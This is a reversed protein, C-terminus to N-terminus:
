ESGREEKRWTISLRQWMEAPLVQQMTKLLRRIRVQNGANRDDIVVNQDPYQQKMWDGVAFTFPACREVETVWEGKKNRLKVPESDLLLSFRNMGECSVLEKAYARGQKLASVAHGATKDKKVATQAIAATTKAAAKPAPPIKGDLPLPILEGKMPISCLYAATVKGKGMSELIKVYSLIQPTYEEMLRHKLEDVTENKKFKDTKYDVVIWNGEKQYIALDIVGEVDLLKDAAKEDAIHASLHQYLDSNKDSIRVMFPLEPYCAADAMLQHLPVTKDELFASALAAKESILKLGDMPELEAGDLLMNKQVKTLVGNGLTEVTAQAAFQQISNRDFKQERVALEMIRHIITGWDPGHPEKSVAKEADKGDPQIQMATDDEAKEQRRKVSRSEADLRSPSISYAAEDTCASVAEKRKEDLQMLSVEVSAKQQTNKKYHHEGTRLSELAKRLAPDTANDIMKQCSLFGQHEAITKWAGGSKGGSMGCVVLWYAARTVAVYLLRVKEADLYEKEEDKKSVRPTGKKANLDLKEGNWDKPCGIMTKGSSITAFEEADPNRAVHRSPDGGM